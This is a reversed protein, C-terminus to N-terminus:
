IVVPTSTDSELCWVGVIHNCEITTQTLAEYSM